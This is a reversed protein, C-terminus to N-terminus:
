EENAPPRAHVEYGLAALLDGAIEDFEAVEAGSLQELYKGTNAPDPKDLTKQKWALFETPEDQRGGAEGYGLMGTEYDLELWDCIDSLENEPELLLDEFRVVKGFVAGVDSVLELLKTNNTRWESAIDELEGPLDPVYDSGSIVQSINRYSCAVDRGDRVIALFRAKPFSERLLDLHRVYYNNKDGFVTCQRGEKAAYAAVVCECVSAYDAPRREVIAKKVDEFELNWTEIKRSTLVDRAFSSITPDSHADSSTWQGYKGHWWQIFGCEPPVCIESHNTLM